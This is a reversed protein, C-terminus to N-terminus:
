VKSGQWVSAAQRGDCPQLTFRVATLSAPPPGHALGVAALAGAGAPALSLNAWHVLLDLAAEPVTCTNLASIIWMGM